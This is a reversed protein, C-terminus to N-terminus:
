YEHMSLTIDENSSVNIECGSFNKRPGIHIKCVGFRLQLNEFVGHLEVATVATLFGDTWKSILLVIKGKSYRKVFLQGVLFVRELDGENLMLQEIIVM